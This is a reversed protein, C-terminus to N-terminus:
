QRFNHCSFNPFFYKKLIPMNMKRRIQGVKAPAAEALAPLYVPFLQHAGSVLSKKGEIMDACKGFNKLNM